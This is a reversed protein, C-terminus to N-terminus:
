YCTTNNGYTYCDISRSPSSTGRSSNMLSTGLNILMDSQRQQAARNAANNNTNRNVGRASNSAFSNPVSVKSLIHSFLENSNNPKLDNIKIYNTFSLMTGSGWIGDISKSYLGLKKLAYQLQKRRLAPLSKYATKFEDGNNQHKLVNVGCSLGLRQAEKTYKSFRGGRWYKKTGTLTYSALNCLEDSTCQQMNDTCNGQKIAVQQKVGCSLGLRQAEKTYKKNAGYKRFRKIGDFVITALSCIEDNRCYQLNDTCNGQKIAVQQKVGCSLGYEKALAVHGAASDDWGIQGASETTAKGCIESVKCENPDTECLDVIPTVGCEMGLSQALAVHKATESATAWITGSGDLTTSAECLKKLTCENPDSTCDAASGVSASALLAM